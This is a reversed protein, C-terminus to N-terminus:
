EKGYLSIAYPYDHDDHVNLTHFLMKKQSIVVEMTEM